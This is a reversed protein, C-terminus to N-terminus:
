TRGLQTKEGPPDLNPEDDEGVSDSGGALVDSSLLTLPSGTEEGDCYHSPRTITHDRDQLALLSFGQFGM